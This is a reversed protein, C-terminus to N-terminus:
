GFLDPHDPTTRIGSVNFDQTLQHLAGEVTDYSDTVEVFVPAKKGQRLDQERLKHVHCQYVAPDHRHNAGNYRALTLLEGGPAQWLIGCSFGKADLCNKRVYITFRHQVEELNPADANIALYNIEEHGEKAKKRVQPNTVRKRMGRLKQLKEDTVSEFSM